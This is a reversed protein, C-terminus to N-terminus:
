YPSRIFEKNMIMLGNQGRFMITLEKTQKFQTYKTAKVNGVVLFTM